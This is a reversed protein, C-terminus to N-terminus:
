SKEVYFSFVPVPSSSVWVTLYHKAPRKHKMPVKDSYLMCMDKLDTDVALIVIIRFYLKWGQSHSGKIDAM